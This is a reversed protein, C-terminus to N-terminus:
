QEKLIARAFTELNLAVTEQTTWLRDDAAWQTILWGQARNLPILGVPQNLKEKRTMGAVMNDIQTLVGLLDPLPKWDPSQEKFHQKWISYALREAYSHAETKPKPKPKTLEEVTENACVACCGIALEDDRILTRGCVNCNSFVSETM